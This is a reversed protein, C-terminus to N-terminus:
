RVWNGDAGKHKWSDAAKQYSSVSLYQWSSETKLSRYIKELGVWHRNHDPDGSDALFIKDRDKEYLFVTVYHGPTDKWYCTSDASCVLVIAAKSKAIDRQFERYTGPKKQVKCQFGLSTLTERLYGWDIAGGGIYNTTKKAYQYADVPTCRYQTLSSYINAICCLGCGFGGFSGGDYFSVGWEGSWQLRRGWSKPGQLFSYIKEEPKKTPAATSVPKKTRKAATPSTTKVTVHDSMTEQAANDPLKKQVVFAICLMVIVLLFATMSNQRKRVTESIQMLVKKLSFKTGKDAM